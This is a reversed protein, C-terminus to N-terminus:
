KSFNKWYLILLIGFLAGGIHAFHAIGTHAGSAGSFLDIAVLILVFYKAKIPIPPFILMLQTNPFHYAFAVLIGYIAGSAGVVPANTGLVLHTVMAGIGCFLYYFLFKKAGWFAEVSPGIFYLALMNFFIHWTSGHMFMHTFLQIPKFFPTDLPYLVFYQRLSEIPTLAVGIYIIANIIILNKVVGTLRVM